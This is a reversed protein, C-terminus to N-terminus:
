YLVLFTEFYIYRVPILLEFVLCHLQAGDLTWLRGVVKVCSARM